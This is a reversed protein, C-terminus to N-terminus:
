RWNPDKCNNSPNFDPLVIEKGWIKNGARKPNQKYFENRDAIYTNLADKCMDVSEYNSNHIVAKSMGSFVSEIVNLFQASAPLPALKVVPSENQNATLNLETVRKNLRSSIHWSAADWSLYLTRCKSYKVLLINLLKIMEDTNKKESYFHTLQNTSLELAGTLILRGKGSQWQPFTQTVGRPQYTRGGQTKVSFPGYEDISFFAEDQQLEALIKTINALKSRYEPDPSTLVKRAKKFSYGQSRIYESITSIGISAGHKVEFAFSLTKLSWSARNIGHLAPSEHLLGVLQDKKKKIDELTGESQRRHLPAHLGNLGHDLYATRWRKIIRVSKELKSSISTIPLGKGLELIAVSKCWKTRSNSRRWKRLEVRDQTPIHGIQWKPAPTAQMGPNSRTWEHYRFVFQSYGYGNPYDNLYDKWCAQLNEERKAIHISVNPFIRVLDTLRESEPSRSRAHFRAAQIDQSCLASIDNLAYGSESFLRSYKHITTRSVRLAKALETRSSYTRSALLAAMRKLKDTSLTHSPM